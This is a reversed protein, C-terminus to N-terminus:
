QPYKQSTQNKNRQKTSSKDNLYRGTTRVGFNGNSILQCMEATPLRVKHSKRKVGNSPEPRMARDNM